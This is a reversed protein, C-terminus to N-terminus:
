PHAKPLPAAPEPRSAWRPGCASRTPWGAPTAADYLLLQPWPRPATVASDRGLQRGCRTTSTGCLCVVAREELQAVAGSRELCGRRAKLGALGRPQWQRRKIAASSVPCKVTQVTGSHIFLFRRRVFFADATCGADARCGAAQRRLRLHLTQSPLGLNRLRSHKM